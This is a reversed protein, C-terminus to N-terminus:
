VRKMETRPTFGKLFWFGTSRPYNRPQWAISATFCSSRSPVFGILWARRQKPSLGRPGTHGPCELIRRHVKGDTKSRARTKLSGQSYLSDQAGPNAADTEGKPSGSCVPVSAEQLGWVAQGTGGGGEHQLATESPCPAGRQDTPSARLYAGLPCFFISFYASFPFLGGFYPIRLTALCWRCGM